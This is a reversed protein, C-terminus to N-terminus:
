DKKVSYTYGYLYCKILAFRELEAKNTPHFHESCIETKEMFMNTYSYTILYRGM